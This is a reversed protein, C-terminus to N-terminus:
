GRYEKALELLKRFYEKQDYRSLAYQRIEDITSENKKKTNVIVEVLGDVNGPEVYYGYPKPASFPIGSINFGCVPVGCGLAEICTNPVTDAFSTCVFLDALCYYKALLNLDNIYGIPIVNDPCEEPSGDFGVHIFSINKKKDLSRAAEFYYKVGKRPVSFPAVNLIIINDDPVSLEERLDSVDRPYFIGSLDDGEDLVMLEKNKLLASNKAREIVYPAGLFLINKKKYYFDQKIKWMGSSNSFFISKPYDKRCRNGYCHTEFRVCDFAFPCRGTFSYEDYLMQIVPTEISSLYTYLLPISLYYGHLNMLIIVDPKFDDLLHILRNTALKSYHGQRGTVRALFAHFFIEMDSEFRVLDNDVFEDGRGYFVKCEHGCEKSTVYLGHALRGTSGFKCVTNIIAIKM